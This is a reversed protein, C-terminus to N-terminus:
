PHFRNFGHGWKQVPIGSTMVPIPPLTATTAAFAHIFSGAPKM